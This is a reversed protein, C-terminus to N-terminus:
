ALSISDTAIIGLSFKENIIDFLSYQGFIRKLGKIHLADALHDGQRNFFAASGSRIQFDADTTLMPAIRVADFKEMM